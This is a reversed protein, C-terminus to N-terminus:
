SKLVLVPLTSSRLIQRTTSGGMLAAYPGTKATVIILDAHSRKAHVLARKSIMELETDIIISCKISKQKCTKKIWDVMKDTGSRYKNAEPSSEELAWKYFIQAGYFVTLKAYLQRCLQISKNIERKSEQSLDIALLVNKIKSSLKAKPSVVLLDIKSRHVATEAFSGLLLRSFGKRGHSFLAVLKANKQKATSLLDDVARTASFGSSQIIKIKSDRVPVKAKRLSETIANFRESDSMNFSPSLAGENGPVVYMYELDDDSGGFNRLLKRMASVVKTDQHFPEYAWVIKM